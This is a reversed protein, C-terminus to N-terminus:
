KLELRGLLFPKCRHFLFINWQTCGLPLPFTLCKLVIDPLTFYPSVLKHVGYTDLLLLFANMTKLALNCNGDDKMQGVLSPLPWNKPDIDSGWTPGRHWTFFLTDQYMHCNRGSPTDVNQIKWPLAWKNTEVFSKQGLLPFWSELWCPRVHKWLLVKKVPIKKHYFIGDIMSIHMYVVIHM